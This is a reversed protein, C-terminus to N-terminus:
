FHIQGNNYLQPLCFFQMEALNVEKLTDSQLWLLDADTQFFLEQLFTAGRSAIHKVPPDQSLPIKYWHSCLTKLFMELGCLLQRPESLEREKKRGEFM